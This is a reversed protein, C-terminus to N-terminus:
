GPNKAQMILKQALSGLEAGFTTVACINTESYRGKSFSRVLTSLRLQANGTYGRPDTTLTPDSNYCAANAKIGRNMVSPSTDGAVASEIVVRGDKSMDGTPNDLISPAWIGHLYLRAAPRLADFFASYTTVPELYNNARERCSTKNGPASLVETCTVAGAFCRYDLNYCGPQLDPGSTCSMPAPNNENRRAFQVSCDDEDSLFIVALLSDQRLFGSNESRHGDLARRAAELPGEVGCGGDGVMGICQAAREPGVDSGGVMRVPVNSVGGAYSIYRAGGAPVSTADPCLATCNNQAEPSTASRTTCAANQLAGDDGALSGCAGAAPSPFPNTTTAWTGVDTTTFGVHYNMGATALPGMFAGINNFFQRQKAAMFASSDIVFLVDLNNTPTPKPRAIAQVAVKLRDISTTARRGAADWTAEPAVRDSRAGAGQVALILDSGAPQLSPDYPVTVNAGSFAFRTGDPGFEVCPGLAIEGQRLLGNCASLTLAVTQGLAVPPVNIASGALTPNQEPSVALVGGALGIDMAFMTIVPATPPATTCSAHSALVGLLGLVRFSRQTVRLLM